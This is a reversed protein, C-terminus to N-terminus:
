DGEGGDMGGGYETDVSGTTSMKGTAQLIVYSEMKLVITEPKIYLKKM